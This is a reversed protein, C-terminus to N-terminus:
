PNSLRLFLKDSVGFGEGLSLALGPTMTQTGNIIAKLAEPTLDCLHAAQELGWGRCDMEEQIYEGISFTEAPRM